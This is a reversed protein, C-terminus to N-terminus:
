PLPRVGLVWSNIVRRRDRIQSLDLSSGAVRIVRERDTIEGPEIPHLELVDLKGQEPDVRTWIRAGKGRRDGFEFKLYYVVGADMKLRVYHEPKKDSFVHEGPPLKVIMYRQKKLRGLEVGDCLIALKAWTGTITNGTRYVYVTATSPGAAPARAQVLMVGLAVVTM